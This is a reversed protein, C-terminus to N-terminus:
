CCFINGAAEGDRRKELGIAFINWSLFTTKKAMSKAMAKSLHFSKAISTLILSKTRTSIKM